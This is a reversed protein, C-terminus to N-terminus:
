QHEGEKSERRKKFRCLGFCLLILVQFEVFIVYHVKDSTYQGEDQVLAVAIFERGGQSVFINVVLM